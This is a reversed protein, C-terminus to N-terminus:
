THTVTVDSGTASPISLAMQSSDFSVHDSILVGVQHMAVWDWVWARIGGDATSFVTFFVWQGMFDYSNIPKFINNSYSITSAGTKFEFFVSDGDTVSDVKVWSSVTWKDLIASTGWADLSISLPSATTMEAPVSPTFVEHIVTSDVPAASGLKLSTLTLVLAFGRWM